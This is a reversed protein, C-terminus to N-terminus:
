YWLGPLVASIKNLLKSTIGQLEEEEQDGNNHKQWSGLSGSATATDNWTRNNAVLQVQIHPTVSNYSVTPQPWATTYETVLHQDITAM